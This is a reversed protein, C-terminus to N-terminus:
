RYLGKQLLAYISGTRAAVAVAEANNPFSCNWKLFRRAGETDTTRRDRCNQHGAVVTTVYGLMGLYCKSQRLCSATMASLRWIEGDGSSFGIASRELCISRSAPQSPTMKPDLVLAGIFMAPTKTRRSRIDPTAASM